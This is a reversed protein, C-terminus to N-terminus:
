KVPRYFTGRTGSESVILGAREMRRLHPAIRDAEIGVTVSIDEATCPRSRLTKLILENYQGVDLEEHNENEVRRAHRAIKEVPVSRGIVGAIQDLVADDEPQVWDYLGPRDLTNLQVKDPMIRAALARFREASEMSDNVGPLIFIELWVAARSHRKFNIIGEVVRELTIGAAQRNIRYLEEDNSGDMSPVILDVPAIEKVLQEDNLLSANTLLCIKLEPHAERIHRIITGIGSHLTPEGVGSFTVYDIKQHKALVEELEQIVQSTPFYERRECTLNTTAGCECYVCDMSCTKYPLLDIGLSLGLRRSPIPGFVCKTKIQSMILLFSRQIFASEPNYYYYIRERALLGACFALNILSELLVRQVPCLNIRRYEDHRQPKRQDQSRCALFDGLQETEKVDGFAFPVFKVRFGGREEATDGHIRRPKERDQSCQRRDREYKRFLGHLVDNGSDRSDFQDQAFEGYDNEARQRREDHSRIVIFVGHLRVMLQVPLDGDGNRGRSEASNMDCEKQIDRKEAPEQRHEPDNENEICGIEEVVHVTKGDTRRGDCEEEECSRCDDVLLIEHRAEAGATRTRCDPEPEEIM